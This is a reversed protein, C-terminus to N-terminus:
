GKLAALSDRVSSPEGVGEAAAQAGENFASAAAVVTAAPGPKIRGSQKSDTLFVEIRRALDALREQGVVLAAGKLGHAEVRLEEIRDPNKEGSAALAEIGAIIEPSRRDAEAALMALLEPDGM